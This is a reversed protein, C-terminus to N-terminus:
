WVIIITIMITVYYNYHHYQYYYNLHTPLLYLATGMRSLVINEFLVFCLARLLFWFFVLVFSFYYNVFSFAIRQVDNVRFSPRKLFTLPYFFITLPCPTSKSILGMSSGQGRHTRSSPIIQVGGRRGLILRIEWAISRVFHINEHYRDGVSLVTDWLIELWSRRPHM